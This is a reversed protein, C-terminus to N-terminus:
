LKCQLYLSLVLRARTRHGCIGHVHAVRNEVEQQEARNQANRPGRTQHTGLRLLRQRQVHGVIVIYRKPWSRRAGVGQHVNGRVRFM